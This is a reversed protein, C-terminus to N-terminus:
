SSCTTLLLFLLHPGPFWQPGQGYCLRYTRNVSLSGFQGVHAISWPSRSCTQPIEDETKIGNKPHVPPSYSTCPLEIPCPTTAVARGALGETVIFCNPWTTERFLPPQSLPQNTVTLVM